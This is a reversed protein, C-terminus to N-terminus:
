DYWAAEIMSLYDKFRTLENEWIDLSDTFTSVGFRDTLENMAAVIIKRRQEISLSPPLNTPFVRDDQIKDTRGVRQYLNVMVATKDQQAPPLEAGTYTDLILELYGRRLATGDDSLM